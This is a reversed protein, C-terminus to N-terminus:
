KKGRKEKEKKNREYIRHQRKYKGRENRINSSSVISDSIRTDQKVEGLMSQLQYVTNPDSLDVDKFSNLNDVVNKVKENFYQRDNEKMIDVNNAFSSLTSQLAGRTQQIKESKYQIAKAFFDFGLDAIPEVKALKSYQSIM